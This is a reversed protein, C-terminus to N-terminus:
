FYSWFLKACGGTVFETIRSSAKTGGKITTSAVGGDLLAYFNFGEAFSASCALSLATVLAGQKFSEM